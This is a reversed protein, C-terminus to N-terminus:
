GMLPRIHKLIEKELGLRKRGQPFELRNHGVKGSNGNASGLSLGRLPQRENATAASQSSSPLATNVTSLHGRAGKLGQQGPLFPM